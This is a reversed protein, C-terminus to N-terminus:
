YSSANYNQSNTIWAPSDGYAEYVICKPCWAHPNSLSPPWTSGTANGSKPAFGNSRVFKGGAGMFCIRDGPVASSNAQDLTCPSGVTCATGSGKASIYKTCDSALAFAGTVLFSQETAFVLVYFLFGALLKHLTTM